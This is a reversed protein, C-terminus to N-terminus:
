DDNHSSKVIVKPIGHVDFGIINRHSHFHELAHDHTHTHDDHRHDHYALSESGPAQNIAQAQSLHEHASECSADHHSDHHMGHHTHPVFSSPLEHEYKATM